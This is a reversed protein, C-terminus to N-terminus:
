SGCSARLGGRTLNPLALATMEGEILCRARALDDLRERTILPVRM